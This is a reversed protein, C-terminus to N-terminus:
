LEGSFPVAWHITRRVRSIRDERNDPVRRTERPMPMSLGRPRPCLNNKMDWELNRDLPKPNFYYIFAIKTVGKKLKGSDDYKLRIRFSINGKQEDKYNECSWDEGNEHFKQNRGINM